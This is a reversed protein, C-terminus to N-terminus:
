VRSPRPYRAPYFHLIIGPLTSVIEIKSQPEAVARPLFASDDRSPNSVAFCCSECPIGKFTSIHLIIGRFPKFKVARHFASSAAPLFASYDRSPNSVYSVTEEPTLSGPLFASYDRSPNSFVHSEGPLRACFGTLFASYDRSPNSFLDVTVHGNITTQLYFHLIIGPLTQFCPWTRGGSSKEAFYFHLIIGPLTQFLLLDRHSLNSRRQYFASYDQFPKFGM